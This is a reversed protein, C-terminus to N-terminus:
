IISDFYDRDSRLIRAGPGKWKDFIRAVEAENASLFEAWVTEKDQAPYGLLNTFSNNIALVVSDDTDDLPPWTALIRRVEGRELGFLTAFEWEPFFPGHVAAGLCERSSREKGRM